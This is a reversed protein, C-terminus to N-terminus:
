LLRYPMTITVKTGLPNHLEDEMDDIIVTLSDKNGHSLMKLREQTIELALSKHTVFLNSKIEGSKKRGIGNDQVVCKILNESTKSLHVEIYGRNNKESIGHIIANEVHPQILMPPIEVNDATLDDDVIVNFDFNNLRQQELSLYYNITDTENKVLVFTERSNELILHMLRAFKALYERAVNLNQLMQASISNLSNFIFHPNMQLLLSKQELEIIKKETAIKEKVRLMKIYFFVVIILLLMLGIGAISLNRIWRERSLEVNQQENEKILMAIKHEKKEIEYKNLLENFKSENVINFISDNIQKSLNKYELAKKFNHISDYAISLNKYLSIQISLFNTERAIKLGKLANEISENYRKFKLNLDSIKKLVTLGGLKDGQKEKIKLEKAYVEIKKDYDCQNLLINKSANKVSEYKKNLVDIESSIKDNFISDNIQKSLNKYEFAKKFNHLSDYAISINKYIEKQLTIANIEKAILLSQESYEIAKKFNKFELNIESINKLIISTEFKDGKIESIKLLKSYNDIKNNYDAVTLAKIKSENNKNNCAFLLVLALGLIIKPYLCIVNKAKSVKNIIRVYKTKKLTSMGSCTTNFLNEPPQKALNM